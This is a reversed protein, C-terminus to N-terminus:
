YENAITEVRDRSSFMSFQLRAPFLSVAEKLKSNKYEQAESFSLFSNRNVSLTKSSIKLFCTHTKTTNGKNVRPFPFLLSSFTKLTEVKSLTKM